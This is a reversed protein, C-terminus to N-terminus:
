RAHVIVEFDNFTDVVLRYDGPRLLVEFDYTEGPGFRLRAAGRVSQASNLDRGDKALSRWVVPTSDALFQVDILDQITINIFRLRHRVGARLVLAPPKPTGNLAITSQAGLGLQSFLLIHDKTSDYTVGPPLVILSGHLGLAIERQDDVHAHYIFTGARPPTFKAVFSDAPPILPATRSDKGSFGAVGDFYSELEIGHWHVATYVSAHNVVTIQAREGRTLVIARGPIEVSDPAPDRTDSRIFSYAPLQRFGQPKETVVLRLRRQIPTEKVPSENGIPNVHIGLVLGSMDENAHHAADHMPGPGPGPNNVGNLNARRRWTMHLADHCHFLWNGARASRWTLSISGYGPVIETVVHRRQAPAYLTDAGWGSRSDVRYYFGHLHMPHVGKTGNLVRWHVSDGVTMALRETYPWSKGNIATVFGPGVQWTGLVFIRDPAPRRGDVILAGVLQQGYGGDRVGEKEVTAGRYLYTGVPPVGAALESTDGPAVRVTDDMRRSRLGLVLLTDPLENRVRVMLRTEANLRILPGPVTPPRGDEGFADTILSPGDEAEPHWRTRRAVLSVTLVGDRLTGAARRNDNAEARVASDQVVVSPDPAFASSLLCM